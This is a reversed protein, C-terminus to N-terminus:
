HIMLRRGSAAAMATESVEKAVQAIVSQWDGKNPQRFLRMTPYWPSDRRGSLWRWDAAWPLLTWTPRGLAGALHAAATDITLILDLNMMAAATDAFDRLNASLDVLDLGPPRTSAHPGADPKQLSFFVVGPVKALPALKQPGCTRHPDPKQNGAWVLGVKM